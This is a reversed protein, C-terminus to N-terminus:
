PQHMLSHQQGNGCQQAQQAKAPRVVAVFQQQQTRTVIKLCGAVHTEASRQQAATAQQRRAPFLLAALQQRQTFCVDRLGSAVLALRLCVWIVAVRFAGDLHPQGSM